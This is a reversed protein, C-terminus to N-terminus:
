VFSTAFVFKIVRFVNSINFQPDAEVFIHFYLTYKVRKIKKTFFIEIKLKKDNKVFFM